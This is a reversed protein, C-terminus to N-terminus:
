YVTLPSALPVVKSQGNASVMRYQTVTIPSLPNPSEKEKSVQFPGCPDAETLPCSQPILVQLGLEKGDQDLFSVTGAGSGPLAYVQITYSYIYIINGSEDEQSGIKSDRVEALITPGGFIVRDAFLNGCASLGLVAPLWLWRLGKM